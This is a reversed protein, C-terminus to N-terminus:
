APKWGALTELLRRLLPQVGAAFGQDWDQPRGEDGLYCSWCMELQLAHVGDAPRGYQRTIYGGKFRGNLVHTFGPHRAAADM